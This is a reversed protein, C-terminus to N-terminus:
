YYFTYDDYGHTHSTPTVPNIYNYVIIHAYIISTTNYRQIHKNQQKKMTKRICEQNKKTLENKKQKM